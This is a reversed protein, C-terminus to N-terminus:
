RNLYESAKVQNNFLEPMSKTGLKGEGPARNRYEFWLLIEINNRKVAETYWFPSEVPPKHWKTWGEFAQGIVGLKHDSFREVMRDFRDDFEQKTFVGNEHRFPYFTPLIYDANSPTETRTEIVTYGFKYDGIIERALDLLLELAGTEWGDVYPEDILIVFPIQINDYRTIWSKVSNLRQRMQSESANVDFGEIIPIAKLGQEIIRPVEGASLGKGVNVHDFNRGENPAYLHDWYGYLINLESYNVKYSEKSYKDSMYIDEMFRTCSTNSRDFELSIKDSEIEVPDIKRWINNQLEQNNHSNNFQVLEFDISEVQENTYISREQEMKVTSFFSLSLFLFLVLYKM